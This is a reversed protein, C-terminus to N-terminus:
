KFLISHLHIFTLLKFLICDIFTISNRHNSLILAVFSDKLASNLFFPATLNFQFFFIIISRSNFM